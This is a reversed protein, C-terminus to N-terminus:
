KQKSQNHNTYVFAVHDMFNKEFSWLKLLEFIDGNIYDFRKENSNM